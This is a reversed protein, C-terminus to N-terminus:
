GTEDILMAAGTDVDHDVVVFLGEVGRTWGLVMERLITPFEPGREALFGQVSAPNVMIETRLVKIESQTLNGISLRESREWELALEDLSAEHLSLGSEPRTGQEAAHKRIIYDLLFAQALKFESRSPVPPVGSKCLCTGGDLASRATTTTSM